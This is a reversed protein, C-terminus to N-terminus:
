PILSGSVIELHYTGPGVQFAVKYPGEWNATLKGHEGARAVVEMHRLVFDGVQIPQLRVILNHLRAIRLKYLAELLLATSLKTSRQM